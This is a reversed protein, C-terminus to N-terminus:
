FVLLALRLLWGLALVRELIVRLGKRLRQNVARRVLPAKFAADYLHAARQACGCQACAEQLPGAEACAAADPLTGRVRGPLLGPHAHANYHACPVMTSCPLSACVSGMSFRPTGMAGTREWSGVGREWRAKWRLWAGACSCSWSSGRPVLAARLALGRLPRQSLRQPLNKRRATTSPIFTTTAISTISKATLLSTNSPRLLRQAFLVSESLLYARVCVCVCVSVCLVWDLVFM